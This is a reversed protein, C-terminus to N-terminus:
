GYLGGLIQKAMNVDVWVGSYYCNMINSDLNYVFNLIGDNDAPSLTLKSKSGSNGVFTIAAKHKEALYKVMYSLRKEYANIRKTIYTDRDKLMMSVPPNEFKLFQSTENPYMHYYDPMCSNTDYYNFALMQSYDRSDTITVVKSFDGLLGKALVDELFVTPNDIAYEAFVKKITSRMASQAEASLASYYSYKPCTIIM